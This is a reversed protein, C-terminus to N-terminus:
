AGFYRRVICMGQTTSLAWRGARERQAVKQKKTQLRHPRQLRCCLRPPQGQARCRAASHQLNECQVKNRWWGGDRTEAHIQTVAAAGAAWMTMAPFVQHWLLALHYYTSIHPSLGYLSVIWIWLFFILCLFSFYSEKVCYFLFYLHDPPQAM